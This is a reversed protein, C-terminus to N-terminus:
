RGAEVAAQLAARTISGSEAKEHCERCLTILNDDDLRLDYDERYSTISGLVMVHTDSAQVMWGM